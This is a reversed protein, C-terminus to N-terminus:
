VKRKLSFHLMVIVRTFKENTYPSTEVICIYTGITVEWAMSLGIVVYLVALLIVCDVWECIQLTLKRKAEGGTILSLM